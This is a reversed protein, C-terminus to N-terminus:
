NTMTVSCIVFGLYTIEQTPEAISKAEHLLFGANQLLTGFASMDRWAISYSIGRILTDDL